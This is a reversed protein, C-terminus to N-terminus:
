IEIKLESRNLDKRFLKFVPLYGSELKLHQWNYEGVVTKCLPCSITNTIQSLDSMWEMIEIEVHKDALHLV